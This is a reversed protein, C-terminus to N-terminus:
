LRHLMLYIAVGTVSVYFCIPVTWRALRAHREYRSAFAFWLTAPILPLLLSALVTHSGLILFYLVRVPGEGTFRTSGHLTHYVLYSLLFLLSTGVAGLMCARHGRVHRRRIFAWGALILTASTANLAANVSPLASLPIM